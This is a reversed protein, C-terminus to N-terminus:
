HKSVSNKMLCAQLLITKIGGTKKIVAVSIRDRYDRTGEGENPPPIKSQAILIQNAMQTQGVKNQIDTYAM